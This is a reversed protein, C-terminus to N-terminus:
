TWAAATPPMRWQGGIFLRGPPLVTTSAATPTETLTMTRSKQTTSVTTPRTSPKWTASLERRVLSRAVRELLDAFGAPDEQFPAHGHPIRVIELRQARRAVGPVRALRGGDNETLIVDRAQGAVRRTLGRRRVLRAVRGSCIPLQESAERPVGPPMDRRDPGREDRSRGM